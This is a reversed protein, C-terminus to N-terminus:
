SSCKCIMVYTISHIFFVKAFKAQYLNLLCAWLWFLYFVLWALICTFVCALLTSTLDSSIGTLVLLLGCFRVPPMPPLLHHCRHSCITADTPAFPPLPPLLHHCTELLVSAVITGPLINYSGRASWVKTKLQQQQQLENSPFKSPPQPFAPLGRIGNNIASGM